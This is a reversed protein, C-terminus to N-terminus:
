PIPDFIFFVLGHIVNSINETDSLVHGAATGTRRCDKSDDAEWEYWEVAKWHLLSWICLRSRHM